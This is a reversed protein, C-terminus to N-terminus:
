LIDWDSQLTTHDADKNAQNWFGGEFGPLDVHNTILQAEWLLLNFLSVWILLLLWLERPIIASPSPSQPPPQIPHFTPRMQIRNTGRPFKGSVSPYVRIAVMRSM